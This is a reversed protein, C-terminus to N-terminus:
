CTTTPSACWRARCASSARWHVLENIRWGRFNSVGWYRIKGAACCPTRARLPEELDMGNYDRHLYLIDVHDTQLRAPQRRGRAADLQALLPRRERRQSMANGLKTALV